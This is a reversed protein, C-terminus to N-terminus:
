ADVPHFVYAFDPHRSRIREFLDEPGTYSIDHVLEFEDYIVDVPYWRPHKESGFARRMTRIVRTDQRCDSIEPTRLDYEMSQLFESREGVHLNTFLHHIADSLHSLPSDFCFELITVTVKLRFTRLNPTHFHINQGELHMVLM